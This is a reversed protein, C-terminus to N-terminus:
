EMKPMQGSMKQRFLSANGNTSIMKEHCVVSCIALGDSQGNAAWNGRRALQQKEGRGVKGFAKWNLKDAEELHKQTTAPTDNGFLTKASSEDLRKPSVKSFPGEAIRDTPLTHDNAVM